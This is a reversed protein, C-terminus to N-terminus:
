ARAERLGVRAFGAFFADFRDNAAEAAVLAAHAEQSLRAAVFARMTEWDASRARGMNYICESLERLPGSRPRTRRFVVRGEPIQAAFGGQGTTAMFWNLMLYEHYDDALPAYPDSELGFCRAQQLLWIEWVEPPARRAHRLAICIEALLDVNFDLFALTGAFILSDIAADPLCPDVRGYESLYFVIHTLEYAAKKNPMAFTDSRAAFRRLRDGLGRDGPLADVGRRACLRCAEGRQLDSLEAEPLGERAAWEALRAGKNGPMGLDELDLCLSLLFRYYQPFFEMRAEIDDYFARYCSLDDADPRAGTCELINLAEANEKLWFVDEEGRRHDAFNRLLAAQRAAKSRQRFPVTLSVVNSM